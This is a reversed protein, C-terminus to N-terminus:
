LRHRRRPSAAGARTCAHISGEEGAGLEVQLIESQAREAHATDIRSLTKGIDQLAVVAVRVGLKMGTGQAQGAFEFAVIEDTELTKGNVQIAM